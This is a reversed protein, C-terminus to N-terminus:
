KILRIRGFNPIINWGYLARYGAPWYVMFAKGIINYRPVTGLKYTMNGKEDYLRLTPAASLWSRGDHSNPSNDGLCFFEDLQPNDEFRDLKIPNGMTGWGKITGFKNPTKKGLRYRELMKNYYDFRAGADLHVRLMSASQMDPQQLSENTYHVDRYLKLHTLTFGIGSGTIDIGPNAKEEELKTESRIQEELKKLQAEYKAVLKDYKARKPESVMYETQKEIAEAHLVGIEDREERLDNVKDGALVRRKARDITVNYQKDTSQLICKDDVFISARYDVNIFDIKYGKDPVFTPLKKEGWIVWDAKKDRPKTKLTIKGNACIEAAIIQDYCLFRILMKGQFSKNQPPTYVLTLKWDTTKAQRKSNNNKQINNYGNLLYFDKEGPLFKIAVPKESGKFVIRRMDTVAKADGPRRPDYGLDWPNEGEPIEDLQKETMGWRPAVSQEYSYGVEAPYDNDYIVNWMENQASWPKRRIKFQSEGPAKVFVDGNVLQITEGPLGILRKIYNQRNNQPDKFVIVDWPEPSRINYLYKMVLVMDGGRYYYKFKRPDTSDKFNYRCNPCYTSIKDLKGAAAAKQDDSSELGHVFEYGCKPCTVDVHVGCLANAMSGTPIVFAEILFARLVFALVVAIYVSQVMDRAYKLDSKSKNSDSM